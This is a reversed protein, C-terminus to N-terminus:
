STKEGYRCLTGALRGAVAGVAGWGVRVADGPGMAGFGEVGESGTTSDSKQTGSTLLRSTGVAERAISAM